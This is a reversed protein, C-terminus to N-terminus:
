IAAQGLSLDCLDVVGPFEAGEPVRTVTGADALHDRRLLGAVFSDDAAAPAPPLIGHRHGTWCEDASQRGGAREPLCHDCRAVGAVCPQSGPVLALVADAQANAM